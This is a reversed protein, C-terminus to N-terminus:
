YVPEKAKIQGLIDAYIGDAINEAVQQSIGGEVLQDILAEFYANTGEQDKAEMLELAKPTMATSITKYLMGEKATEPTLRTVTPDGFVMGGPEVDFQGPMMRNLLEASFMAQLEKNGELAPLLKMLMDTQDKQVKHQFQMIKLAQGLDQQGRMLSASSASGMGLAELDKLYRLQDQPDGMDPPQIPMDMELNAYEGLIDQFTSEIEDWLPDSRQQRPAGAQTMQTLSQGGVGGAPDGMDAGFGSFGGFRSYSFRGRGNPM